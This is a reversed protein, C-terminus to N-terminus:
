DIKGTGGGALNGSGGPALVGNKLDSSATQLYITNGQRERYFQYYTKESIDNYTTQHRKTTWNDYITEQNLTAPETPYISFVFNDEDGFDKVLWMLMMSLGNTNVDGGGIVYDGTTILGETTDYTDYTSGTSLGFDWFIGTDKAGYYIYWKNNFTYAGFAFLEDGYGWVNSDNYELVTAQHTFSYGDTSTSVEVNDYVESGSIATMSSWYLYITDNHNFAACSFVGEEDYTPGSPNHTLIPNSGYKTWNNVNTCNATCVAVGLKRHAPGGDGRDGDAGIYYLFKTGSLEVLACPSIMGDLRADWQGASGTTLVVGQYIWDNEGPYGAAYVNASFFLFLFLFYIKKM